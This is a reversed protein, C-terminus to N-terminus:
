KLERQRLTKQWAAEDRNPDLFLQTGYDSVLRKVEERDSAVWVDGIVKRVRASFIVIPHMVFYSNSPFRKRKTPQGKEDLVGTHPDPGTPRGSGEKVIEIEVRGNNGTRIMDWVQLETNTTLAHWKM